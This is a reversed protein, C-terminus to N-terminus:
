LPLWITIDLDKQNKIKFISLYKSGFSTNIINDKYYEIHLMNQQPESIPIKFGTNNISEINLLTIKKLSKINIIKASGIFIPFDNEPLFKNEIQQMLLENSNSKDKKSLFELIDLEAKLTKNYKKIYDVQEKTQKQNIQIIIQMNDNLLNINYQNLGISTIEDNFTKFFHRQEKDFKKSIKDLTKITIQRRHM